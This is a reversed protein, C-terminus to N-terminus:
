LRDELSAIEANIEEVAKALEILAAHNIRMMKQMDIVKGNPAVDDGFAKQVDEAYPGIHPQKDQIGSDDTYQWTDNDLRSLKQAPSSSGGLPLKKPHPEEDAVRKLSKSSFATYLSGAMMGLGAVGQMTSANANSQAQAAGLLLNGASSNANVASNITSMPLAAGQAIVGQQQAMTGGATQGAGLSLRATEIGTSTMNRGFRAANDTLAIGAQEVQRRANGQASATDRAQALAMGSKMALAKGSSLTTNTRALDRDLARSQQDYQIGVDAAAAAAEAERRQPTDFEMAQKALKAEVPQWTDRYSKWQEASQEASLNQQELSSQMIKKFIPDFEAQRVKDDAYQERALALQERGLAANERAAQNVGSMNPSKSKGM